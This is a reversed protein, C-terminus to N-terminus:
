RTPAKQQLHLLLCHFSDAEDDTLPGELHKLAAEVMEQKIAQRKKNANLHPYRQNYGPELAFAKLSTTAYRYVPIQYRRATQLVIIQLGVLIETSTTLSLFSREMCIETPKWDIAMERIWSQFRLAQEGKVEEETLGMKKVQTKTGLEFSKCGTEINTAQDTKICFCWGTNKISTDLALIRRVTM